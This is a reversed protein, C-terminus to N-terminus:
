TYKWQPCTMFNDRCRRLSILWGGSSHMPFGMAGWLYMSEMMLLLIGKRGVSDLAAAQQNIPEVRRRRRQSRIFEMRKEPCDALLVVCVCLQSSITKWYYTGISNESPWDVIGTPSGSALSSVVIYRSIYWLPSEIQPQGFLPWSSKAAATTM